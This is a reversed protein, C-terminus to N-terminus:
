HTYLNLKALHFLEPSQNCLTFISLVGPNYKIIFLITFKINHTNLGSKKEHEHKYTCFLCVFLAMFGVLITMREEVFLEVLVFYIKLRREKVM